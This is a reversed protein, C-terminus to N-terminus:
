VVKGSIIYTHNNHPWVFAADVKKVYHQLCFDAIPRGGVPTSAEVFNTNLTYYSSGAVGALLYRGSMANICYMLSALCNVLM